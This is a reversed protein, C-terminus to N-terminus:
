KGFASFDTTIPMYNSSSTTGYQQQQGGVAGYQPQQGGAAGYQPQQGGAAPRQGSMLIDKLGSGTDRLLNTAGSGAGRIISGTEGIASGIIQGTGSAVGGIVDGAGQAVGGIVNGAGEAVGGIVNGAGQVVGGIGNGAADVTRAFNTDPVVTQGNKTLTGSGGTGGCNTCASGVHLTCAPCAPCVPPVIQTKLLYDNSYNSTDFTTTTTTSINANKNEDAMEIGDPTFRCVNALNYTQKTANKFAILVVLTKTSSPIYLVLNQGLSDVMTFPAFTTSTVTNVVKSYNNSDVLNGNRDYVSISSDGTKIILNSSKIDYKVYKSVQYLEKKTDYYKEIIMKNNSADSDQIYSNIGVATNTPYLYHNKANTKDPQGFLWTGIQNRSNIMHVYTDNAWPMYFLIQSDTEKSQTTYTYSKYSKNISNISSLPTNQAVIVNGSIQSSYIESDGSRKTAIVSNISIGTLDINGTYTPSLVEIVNANKEDFYLNDYLKVVSNTSSYQPIVLKDNPAADYRYSVFGESTNQNNGLIVIIVLVALILLFAFFPTFKM